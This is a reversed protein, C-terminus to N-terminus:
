SFVKIRFMGVLIQAHILITYCRILYLKHVINTRVRNQFDGQPLYIYINVHIREALFKMDDVCFQNIAQCISWSYQNLKWDWKKSGSGYTWNRIKIRQILPWITLFLKLICILFQFSSTRVLLENSYILTM